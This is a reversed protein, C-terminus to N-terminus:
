DYLGHPIPQIEYYTLAVLSEDDGDGYTADVQYGEDQEEIEGHNTLVDNLHKVLEEVTEIEGVVCDSHNHWHHSISYHKPSVGEGEVEIGEQIEKILTDKDIPYSPVWNV